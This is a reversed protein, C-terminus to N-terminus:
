IEPEGRLVFDQFQATEAESGCLVLLASGEAEGRLHMMGSDRDPAPEGCRLARLCFGTEGAALCACASDFADLCDGAADTSSLPAYVDLCLTLVCRLGYVEQEGREPDNKVGLYNGASGSRNEARLVSVRLVTESAPAHARPYAACASLGAANLATIVADRVNNLM